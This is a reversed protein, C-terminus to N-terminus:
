VRGGDRGLASDFIVAGTTPIRRGIASTRSSAARTRRPQERGQRAPELARSELRHRGRSEAIQEAGHVAARIRVAGDRQFREILDREIMRRCERGAAADPRDRALADLIEELLVHDAIPSDPISRSSIPAPACPPWRMRRRERYRGRRHDPLGAGLEARLQAIVALSRAHLPAGSLGGRQAAPWAAGLSLWIPRPIRPSSATSGSRACPRPWRRSRARRRPGAGGQGAAPRAQRPAGQARRAGAAADGVIREM